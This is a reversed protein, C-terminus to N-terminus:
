RLAVGDRVRWRGRVMVHRPAARDTAFLYRDLVEGPPAGALPGHRDDLVVLDARRGPAIAGHDGFGWYRAPNLTCLQIARVPDLGGAVARRLTEDMHGDHLLTSCERDDSCFMIQPWTRDTVLPLLAALNHETS